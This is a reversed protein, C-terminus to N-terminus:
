RRKELSTVSSKRRKSQNDSSNEWIWGILVASILHWWNPFFFPFVKCGTYINITWEKTLKHVRWARLKAFKDVTKETSLNAFHACNENTIRMWLYQWFTRKLFLGYLYKVMWIYEATIFICFLAIQCLHFRWIDFYNDDFIERRFNALYTYTWGFINPLLEFLLYTYNSVVPPTM